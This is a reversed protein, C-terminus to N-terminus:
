RSQILAALVLAAVGASIAIFPKISDPLAIYIFGLGCGLLVYGISLALHRWFKKRREAGRRRALDARVQQTLDIMPIM